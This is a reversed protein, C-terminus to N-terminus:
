SDVASGSRWAGLSLILNDVASGVEGGFHCKTVEEDASHWAGLYYILIDVASGVEGGFHCKTVEEDASHWAGPNIYENTM